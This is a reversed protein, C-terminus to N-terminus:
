SFPLLSHPKTCWWLLIPGRSRLCCLCKDYLSDAPGVWMRVIFGPLKLQLADRESGWNYRDHNNHPNWLILYIFAIGPIFYPNQSRYRERERKKLYHYIDGSHWSTSMSPHLFPVFILVRQGEPGFHCHLGSKLFNVFVSPCQIFLEQNTFWHENWRVTSRFLFISYDSEM